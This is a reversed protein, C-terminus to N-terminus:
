YCAAIAIILLGKLHKGIHMPSAYQDNAACKADCQQKFTTIDMMRMNLKISMTPKRLFGRWLFSSKQAEDIKKELKDLTNKCDDLSVQVSIWLNGDANAQAAVLLPNQKWAQSVVELVRSLGVIEKCLGSISDDVSLADGVFTYLM